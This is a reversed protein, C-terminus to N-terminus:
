EIKPREAKLNDNSEAPRARGVPPGGREPAGTSPCNTCTYQSSESTRMKRLARSSCRTCYELRQPVVPQVRHGGLALEAAGIVAEGAM